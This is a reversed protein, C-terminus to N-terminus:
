AVIVFDQVQGHKNNSYMPLTKKQARERERTTSKFDHFMNKNRKNVETCM